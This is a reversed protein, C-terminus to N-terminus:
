NPLEATRSKTHGSPGATIRTNPPTADAPPVPEYTATYTEPNDGAVIEHARTKGDSWSVFRYTTVNLTQTEPASISNLSGSIVTRSFPTSDSGSGVTLRLGTPETKFNIEITKPDLRVSNTDKLGGSDTATLRLELWSPYEHDPAVFSGSAVGDFDRIQHPHCNDPTYCHHLILSWSLSSASLKGDQPDDASGSFSIEDDVKWKLTEEPAEINAAPSTNGADIVVSDTNSASFGDTVRLKATYRGPESYTRTPNAATSDDFAGDEDLDWAYTIEDGVDPDYSGTGDFNVTLPAAGNTPNANAVARPPQNGSFHRIRRIEGGSINVYFLDGEPGIQLNVPGSAGALFTNVKSPDPLGNAGKEMVWICKRSFDTFFLAGDYEDPYSGNAYFALGAISSSGSSCTEGEVVKGSHQYAFYPETVAGTGEGYLDECVSLNAGDYGGQRGTGEYCPWGFNDVASGTPNSIRNIEESVGWGVDGLWVENTGHRVTFRFPNRLGHAIIRHENPDSSTYLPNGPLADGTAPDVRLITGDLGTPDGATRLDQSRLAGGEATPSTQNGGVGSPPDGCPNKPTGKQGYDPFNFSAGDGGGVYLAGDEGFALTGISHSPYQQCWDEILVRENGVMQDTGTDVTLRSLRGSVVCGDGTAGPPNPCPDSSVGPAGWKPATGGIEADFTYLVYIYPKNPFNPDLAMGLLGRDWFNHVNTRLDAAVIPDEDLLDDFVKIVGSKEAVFVKGNQAFKVVTPQTLGKIAVSEQFGTPLSAAEADDSWVALVVLISAVTAFVVALAATIVRRNSTERSLQEM